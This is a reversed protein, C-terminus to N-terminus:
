GVTSQLTCLPLPKDASLHGQGSLLVRLLCAMLLQQLISYSLLLFTEQQHFSFLCM